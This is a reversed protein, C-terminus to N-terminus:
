LAATRNGVVVAVAALLAVFGVLRALGDDGGQVFPKQDGHCFRSLAGIDPGHLSKHVEIWEERRQVAQFLALTARDGVRVVLMLEGQEEHHPEDQKQHFTDPRGPFRSQPHGGQEKRQKQRGFPRGLVVSASCFVPSHFSGFGHAAPIKCGSVTQKCASASPLTGAGSLQVQVSAQGM